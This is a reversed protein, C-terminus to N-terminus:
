MELFLKLVPPNFFWKRILSILNAYMENSFDVYLSNSYRYKKLLKWVEDTRHLLIWELIEQHFGDFGFIVDDEEAQKQQHQKQPEFKCRIDRDLFYIRTLAKLALPTLDRDSHSYLPLVPNVFFYNTIISLLKVPLETTESGKTSFIYAGLLLPSDNITEPFEHVQIDERSNLNDRNHLLILIPKESAVITPYWTSKGLESM